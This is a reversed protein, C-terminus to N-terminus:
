LQSQFANDSRRSTVEHPEDWVRYCITIVPASIRIGYSPLAEVTMLNTDLGMSYGQRNFYLGMSDMYVAKDILFYAIFTQITHIQLTMCDHMPQHKTVKWTLIIFIHNDNNISQRDTSRMWDAKKLRQAKHTFLTLKQVDRVFKENWESGYIKVVNFFSFLAIINRLLMQWCVCIGIVCTQM